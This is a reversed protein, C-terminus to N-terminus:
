DKWIGYKDRFYQIATNNVNIRSKDHETEAGLADKNQNKSAKSSNKNQNAIWIKKQNLELNGSLWIDDNM